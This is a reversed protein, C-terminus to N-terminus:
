KYKRFAQITQYIGYGVFIRGVVDWLYFYPHDGLIKRDFYNEVYNFRHTPIIFQVYAGIHKEIMRTELVWDFEYLGSNIISLYYFLAGIFLTFVVGFFYSTGHRNSVRNLTLLIYNSVVSFWNYISKFFYNLGSKIIVWLSSDNELKSHWKNVNDIIRGKSFSIMKSFVEKRFTRNELYSFKTADFINKRNVLQNKIIRYTERKNKVPIDGVEAVIQDYSDIWSEENFPGNVSKFTDLTFDFISLEGEIIALSLDIGKKIITGRLILLTKIKSYTFLVNEEFTTSSFVTTSNFNVKYFIVRGVFTSGWFDALDNFTTNNLIQKEKFTCKHFRIKGDFVVDKTKIKKEFFSDRFTLVCSTSQFEVDEQFICNNAFDLQKSYQPIRLKNKFVCGEFNLNLKDPRTFIRVSDSFTCNTLHISKLTKRKNNNAKFVFNKLEVLIADSFLEAKHFSVIPNPFYTFNLNSINVGIGTKNSFIITQIHENPSNNIVELFERENQIRM